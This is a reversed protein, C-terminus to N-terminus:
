TLEGRGYFIDARGCGTAGNGSWGSKGQLLPHLLGGRVRRARPTRLAGGAEGREVRRDSTVVFRELLRVKLSPIRVVCAMTVPILGFLVGGLSAAPTALLRLPPHRRRTM